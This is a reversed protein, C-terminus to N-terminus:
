YREGSEEWPRFARVTMGVGGARSFKGEVEVWHPEVQAQFADAIQAVLREGPARSAECADVFRRVTEPTAIRDQPAYVIRIQDFAQRRVPLTPRYLGPFELEITLMGSHCHTTEIEAGDM